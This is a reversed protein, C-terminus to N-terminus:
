NRSVSNRFYRESNLSSTSGSMREAFRRNKVDTSTFGLFVIYLVISISCIDPITIYLNTESTNVFIRIACMTFLIKDEKIVM